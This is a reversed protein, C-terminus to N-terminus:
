NLNVMPEHDKQAKRREEIEKKNSNFLDLFAGNEFGPCMVSSNPKELDTNFIKGTKVCKFYFMPHRKVECHKCYICYDDFGLFDWYDKKETKELDKSLEELFDACSNCEPADGPGEMNNKDTHSYECGSCHRDLIIDIVTLKNAKDM